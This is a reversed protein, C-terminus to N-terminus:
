LGSPTVDSEVWLVASLLLVVISAPIMALSMRLGLSTRRIFYRLTQLCDTRQRVSSKRQLASRRDPTASVRKM